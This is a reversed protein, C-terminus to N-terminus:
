QIVGGPTLIKFKKSNDASECSMLLDLHAAFYACRFAMLCLTSLHLSLMYYMVIYQDVLLSLPKYMICIKIVVSVFVTKCGLM